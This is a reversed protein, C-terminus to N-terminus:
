QRECKQLMCTQPCWIMFPEGALHLYHFNSSKQWVEVTVSVFKSAFEGATKLESQLSLQEVAIELVSDGSNVVIPDGAVSM